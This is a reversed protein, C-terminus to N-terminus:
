RRTNDTNAGSSELRHIRARFEDETPQNGAGFLNRWRGLHDQFGRSEMIGLLLRYREAAETYRGVSEEYEALAVQAEPIEPKLSVARLLLGVGTEVSGEKIEILGLTRLAEPFEANLELARNAAQRAERLRDLRYYVLALNGFLMADVQSAQPQLEFLKLYLDLAEQDRRMGTRLNALVRIYMWREAEPAIDHAAQFSGVAEEIQGAELARSGAAAAKRAEEARAADTPQASEPPDSDDPVSDTPQDASREAGFVLEDLSDAWTRPDDEPAASEPRSATAGEDPVAVRATEAVPRTDPYGAACGALLFTAPLLWSTRDLVM